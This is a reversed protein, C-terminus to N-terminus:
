NVLRLTSLVMKDFKDVSLSSIIDVIKWWNNNKGENFMNLFDQMDDDLVVLNMLHYIKNLASDYYVGLTMLHTRSMLKPSINGLARLQNDLTHIVHFYGRIGEIKPEVLDLDLIVENDEWMLLKNTYTSRVIFKIGVEVRDDTMETLETGNLIHNYDNPSIVSVQDNELGEIEELLDKSITYKM